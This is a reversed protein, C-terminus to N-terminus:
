KYYKKASNYRQEINPYAPREYQTLFANTCTYLDNSTTLTNYLSPIRERVWKLICELQGEMDAISRGKEITNEYLEKKIEWWTFGVLGYGNGNPGNYIFDNKSIEKSDVKRTYEKRYEDGYLYWSEVSDPLFGSENAINGMIGAAGAKTLGAGIFYKYIGETDASELTSTGSVKHMNKPDFMELLKDADEESIGYEEGYVCQFLFKMLDELDAIAATEELSDFFWSRVVKLNPKAEKSNVLLKVFSNEKATPDIKWRINKDTPVEKVQEKETHKKYEEKKDENKIVVSISSSYLRAGTYNKKTDKGDNTLLKYLESNTGGNEKVYHNVLVKTVIEASDLIQIDNENQSNIDHAYELMLQYEKSPNKASQNYDKSFLKEIYEDSSMDIICNIINNQVEKIQLFNNLDNQGAYLNSASTDAVGNDKIFKSLKNYRYNLSENKKETEQEIKKKNKKFAEEITKDVKERLKPDKIQKINGKEDKTYELEGNEDVRKRYYERGLIEDEYTVPEESEEDEEKTEIKYDKNYVATWIDAYKLKLEPNDTKLTDVETIEFQYKQTSNGESVLGNQRTPDYDESNLYNSNDASGVKYFEQTYTTTTTTVADYCGLVIDTDIVLNAFNNIFAQDHGYVLLSWFLSFQLTYNSVQELYNISKITLKQYEEAKPTYNVDYYIDTPCNDINNINISVDMTEWGAVVINNSTDLSFYNFAKKDGDNIMKVLDDYKRYELYMGKEKDKQDVPNTLKGSAFAVTQNDSYRKIKICGQVENAPIEKDEEIEKASRLDPYQTVICAKIMNKLYEHQNKSSLYNEMRFGLEELNKLMTEVEKDLDINVKYGKSEDNKDRLVINSSMDTSSELGGSTETGSNTSTKKMNEIIDKYWIQDGVSNLHFTGEAYETKLYGKGNDELINTTPDIFTVGDKKDCYEKMNKNYTDIDSNMKDSTLSAYKYEKCVHPTKLVFVEKDKYDKKLKDVLEQTTKWNKTGNLGFKVVIASADNPMTDKLSRGNFADSNAVSYNKLVWDANTSSKCYFYSNPSKADKFGRLLEIWSDGIYFIKDEDIQKTTSSTSDSKSHNISSGENKIYYVQYLHLKELSAIDMWGQYDSGKWPNSLYIKSKDKKIDLLAMYHSGASSVLRATDNARVLAVYGQSLKEKADNMDFSSMTINQGSYNSLWQDYVSAGGSSVMKKTIDEFTAKDTYGSGLTITAVTGCEGTWDNALPLHTIHYKSDWGPINQRYEKFQRGTIGSTYITDYGGNNLNYSNDIKGEGNGSTSSTSSDNNSKSGINTSIYKAIVSYAALPVLAPDKEEEDEENEIEKEKDNEDNTKNTNNTNNQTSNSTNNKEAYSRVPLYCFLNIIIILIVFLKKIINTYKNKISDKIM